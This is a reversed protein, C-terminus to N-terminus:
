DPWCQRHRLERKDDMLHYLEGAERFHRIESSAFTALWYSTDFDYHPDPVENWMLMGDQELRTTHWAERAIVVMWTPNYEDENVLYAHYLGMPKRDPRGESHHLAHLFAAEEAPEVKGFDDSYFEPGLLAKPDKLRGARLNGILRKVAACGLAPDHPPAKALSTAGAGAAPLLALAAALVALSRRPKM